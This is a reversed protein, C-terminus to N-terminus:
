NGYFAGFAYRTMHFVSEKHGYATEFSFIQKGDVRRGYCANCRRQDYGPASPEVPTGEPCKNDVYSPCAVRNLEWKQQIAKYRRTNTEIGGSGIGLGMSGGSLNKIDPNMLLAVGSPTPFTTADFTRDSMCGDYAVIGLVRKGNLTAVAGQKLVPDAPADSCTAASHGGVVVDEIDGEQFGPIQATMAAVAATYFGQLDFRNMYSRGSGNVYFPAAVIVNKSGAIENLARNLSSVASNQDTLSTAVTNGHSNQGHIFIYLHVRPRAGNRFATSFRAPFFLQSPSSRDWGADGSPPQYFFGARTVDGTTARQSVDGANSVAGGGVGNGNGGDNSTNCARVNATTPILATLSVSPEDPHDAQRGADIEAASLFKGGASGGGGSDQVLFWRNDQSVGHIVMFHQGGRHDPDSMARRKLLCRACYFILPHGARIEQAAQTSTRIHTKSFGEMTPVGSTFASGGTGAKNQLVALRGGDIPDFLHSGVRAQLLRSVTQGDPHAALDVLQNGNWVKVHSALAADGPNTVQVGYYAMITAFATAGCGGNKFTQTCGNVVPQRYGDGGRGDGKCPALSENNTLNPGYSLNGWPAQGQEYQERLPLVSFQVGEYTTARGSVGGGCTTADGHTATDFGTANPNGTMEGFQRIPAEERVRSIRIANLEVLKPNITKLILFSTLLVVLGIVADTIINQGEKVEPAAAALMYRFGGYVIMIAALIAGLGVSLRYIGSIYQALYPITVEGNEETAATFTVGPIPVAPNPAIPVFPRVAATPNETSPVPEDQATTPTTPIPADSVSQAFVLVPAALVSTVLCLTFIAAIKSVSFPFRSM